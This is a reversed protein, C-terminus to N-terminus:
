MSHGTYRIGPTLSMVLWTSRRLSVCMQSSWAPGKDFRTIVYPIEYNISLEEDVFKLIGENRLDMLFKRLDM